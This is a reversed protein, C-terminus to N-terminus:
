RDLGESAEDLAAVEDDTLRWGLAEANSRAHRANKAGPIPVTGKAILWNLAVHVPEKGGHGEGIERMLGILPQIAQLYEKPYMRKRAGPPPHEPTYKGTLLGKAIPSYAIVTVGLDRCTQLVGNREPQRHLLSYEIQNSALPIGRDALANYTRGTQEANFNSIGVARTLGADVVDALAEAWTEVSRM